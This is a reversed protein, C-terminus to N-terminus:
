FTRSNAFQRIFLCFFHPFNLYSLNQHKKCQKHKLQFIQRLFDELILSANGVKIHWCVIVFRRLFSGGFSQQSSIVYTLITYIGVVVACSLQTSVPFHQTTSHLELTCHGLQLAIQANLLWNSLLLTCRYITPTM